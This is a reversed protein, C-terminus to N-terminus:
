IMELITNKKWRSFRVLVFLHPYCRTNNKFSFFEKQIHQPATQIKYHWFQLLHDQLGYLSLYNGTYFFICLCLPNAVNGKM